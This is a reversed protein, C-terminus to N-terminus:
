WSMPCATYAGHGDADDGRGPHKGSRVCGREGVARQHEVAVPDQLEARAGGDLCPVTGGLHVIRHDQRRQHVRVEVELEGVQRALDRASDPEDGPDLRQDGLPGPAPGDLLSHGGPRSRKALGSHGRHAVHRVAEARPAM